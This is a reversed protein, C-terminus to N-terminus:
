ISVTSRVMEDPKYFIENSFASEAFNGILFSVEESKEIHMNHPADLTIVTNSWLKDPDLETMLYNFDILSDSLGCVVALKGKFSKLIEIEDAFIGQAFSQAMLERFAPDTNLLEQCDEFTPNHQTYLASLLSKIEEESLANKQLLSMNPNNKFGHTVMPKKLPPTGFIFVGLPHILPISEIAIHGGLSHGVLVIESLQLEDVFSKLTNAFLNMDYSSHAESDGHGPLDIAILRFKKLIPHNLQHRFSRLSHSNGHIFIISKLNASKSDWYNIKLNNIKIHEM